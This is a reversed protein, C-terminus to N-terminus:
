PRSAALLPELIHAAIHRVVPAVVGDGCVAYADNYRSPLRFGDPLGMLRAAERPSLLRSRARDRGEVVLITQRSSGGTPVRLCGALDDFRVEARQNKGGAGDPRTRRYVAGVAGTDAGAIKQRHLPAMLELLHRTEAASHWAVGSPTEEILDAFVAERPAPAPLRWWIWSRKVTEDLAKVLAPPHWATQPSDAVISSPATLDNRVAVLFVRPRSQPVFLAADVVVAGARYGMRSLAWVIAAFDKGGLSTLWGAVNEIVITRPVYGMMLELFPQVSGSRQGSLGRREGALSLDQCPPSGWALDAPTAPLDAPTLKAIDCVRLHDRGFNLAYADAKMPDIDNALLCRWSPGLGVRAMGGGAFFELFTM